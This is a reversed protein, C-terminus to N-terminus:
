FLFAVLPPTGADANLLSSRSCGGCDHPSQEPGSTFASSLWLALSRNIQPDVTWGEGVATCLTKEVAYSSKPLHTCGDHLSESCLWQQQQAAEHMQAPNRTLAERILHEPRAGGPSHGPASGPRAPPIINRPPTQTSQSGPRTLLLNFVISQM